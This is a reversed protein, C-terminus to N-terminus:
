ALQIGRMSATIEVAAAEVSVRAFDYPHGSTLSM